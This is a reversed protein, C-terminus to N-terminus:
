AHFFCMCWYIAREFIDPKRFFKIHSGVEANNWHAFRPGRLLNKLLKKNVKFMVFKEDNKAEATPLIKYGNGNLSIEVSTQDTIPLIVKTDSNFGISKRKNEFREFCKPILELIENDSVPNDLEFDFKQKSLVDDVYKKKEDLNIREYSKSSMGYYIDFNEGSNLIICKNKTSDIQESTSFYDYAEDLEPVGRLNNYKALSGGLTYRGAFPMFYKPNFLNIYYEAQQYFQKKKNEAAVYM